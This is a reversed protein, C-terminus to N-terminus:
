ERSPFAHGCLPCRSEATILSEGCEPCTTSLDAYREHQLRTIKFSISACAWIVGAATLLSLPLVWVPGVASFPPLTQNELAALQQLTLSISVVFILITLGLLILLRGRLFMPFRSNRDADDPPLSRRYLLPFYWFMLPVHLHPVFCCVLVVGRFWRPVDGWLKLNRTARFLWMAYAVYATFAFISCLLLLSVYVAVVAPDRQDDLVVVAVGGSVVEDMLCAYLFLFAFVCGIHINALRDLPRFLPQSAMTKDARSESNM